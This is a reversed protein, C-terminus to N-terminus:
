RIVMLIGSYIVLAAFLKKLFGTKLKGLLFGGVIGGAIAAVAYVGFGKASLNGNAAYRICAVASTPLMACLANAYVDRGDSQGDLLYRLGLVVLIGGGAGFLGNIFGSALGILPLVVAATKSKDKVSIM